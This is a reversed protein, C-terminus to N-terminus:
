TAIASYHSEWLNILPRTLARLKYLYIGSYVHYVYTSTFQM